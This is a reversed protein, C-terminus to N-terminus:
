RFEFNDGGVLQMIFYNNSDIIEYDKVIKSFKVYSNEERYLIIRRSKPLYIHKDAIDVMFDINSNKLIGIDSYLSDKAETENVCKIIIYKNNM